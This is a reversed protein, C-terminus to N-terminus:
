LKIKINNNLSKLSNLFQSYHNKIKNDKNNSMLSEFKYNLEHNRSMANKYKFGYLKHNKIIQLNEKKRNHNPM